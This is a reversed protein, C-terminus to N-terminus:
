KSIIFRWKIKTEGGSIFAVVGDTGVVLKIQLMVEDGWWSRCRRANNM